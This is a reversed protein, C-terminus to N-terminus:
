ILGCGNSQARLVRMVGLVTLFPVQNSLTLPKPTLWVRAGRSRTLHPWGVGAGVADGVLAGVGCGVGVGGVGRGVIAGVTAGVGAGDSTSNAQLQQPWLLGEGATRSPECSLSTCICAWFLAFARMGM